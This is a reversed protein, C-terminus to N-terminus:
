RPIEITFTTPNNKVSITGKHNEVINKCSALGLGTGNEKFSILPEFIMNLQNEPIGKGSDIVKIIVKKSTKISTFQISGTNQISDLANSILNILLIEFQIIDCKFSVPHDPLIIKVSKPIKLRQICEDLISSLNCPELEPTRLKVFDMVDNIQHSMRTIGKEIVNLKELAESKEITEEESIKSKLLQTGLNINSLPNRMDHALRSALEGVTALKEIKQQYEFNKKLIRFVLLLLAIHVGVNLILLIIEVLIIKQSTEEISASLKEVLINSASILNSTDKEVISTKSTSFDSELLADYIKLHNSKLLLFKSYVDDWDSILNANLQPIRVHNDYGGNKLLLLNQELELLGHETYSDLNKKHVSDQFENLFLSALLRNKGAVNISNGVLSIQSDLIAISLFSTIILVIQGFVILSIKTNNKL